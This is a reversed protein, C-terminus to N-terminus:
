FQCETKRSSPVNTGFYSASASKINRNILVTCKTKRIVYANSINNRNDRVNKPGSLCFASYNYEGLLLEFHSPKRWQSAKVERLVFRLVAKNLSGTRVASYVSKM